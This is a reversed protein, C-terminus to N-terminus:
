EGPLALGIRFFNRDPVFPSTGLDFEWRDSGLSDPDSVPFDVYAETIGLDESRQVVFTFEGIYATPFDFHIGIRGGSLELVKFNTIAPIALPESPVEANDDRPDFGILYLQLYTYGNVPHTDYPGVVGLSGFFFEEWDDGLLNANVDNDSALPVSIVQLEIVELGVYPAEAVVDTYGKISFRTGLALGLGQDLNLPDGDAEFFRVPSLDDVKEFLYKDGPLTPAKVEITWTDFPRYASTRAALATTIEALAATIEQATIPAGSYATPLAGERLLTRLADLPLPLLPIVNVPSATPESHAVHYAYLDDVLSALDTGLGVSTEMVSLLNEFSLGTATLADRMPLTLPSRESDGGRNGFLTFQAHPPIEPIAEPPGPDAPIIQPVGLELQRPMPLAVLADLIVAEVLVAVATDIPELDTITTVQEFSAYAAAAAAVWVAADTSQNTGALAPAIVPAQQDPHQILKYIERGGKVESAGGDLFFYEPSNLILFENIPVSSGTDLAAALQGALPAPSSLPNVPASGLLGSTMSHLDIIEGDEADLAVRDSAEGGLTDFAQALLRIGEGLFPSTSTAPQSTPDNPDSGNIIEDLDSFGDADADPGSNAALGYEQEVFDPVGDSDQDFKALDAANFTYNRSIIPSLAGSALDQSYFQWSSPYSITLPGTYSQWASGPKDERYFVQYLDDDVLITADIAQPYLGSAPTVNIPPLTLALNTDLATLSITDSIQNTLLHTSGPPATPITATPNDLGTAADGFTEVLVNPPIPAPSSKSTWDPSAELELLTATPDVLPESSFWFLTAFEPIAPILAPLVGSDKLTFGLGDWAYFDFASSGAGAGSLAIVGRGPVPLLGRIPDPGSPTFNQVSNLNNGNDITFYEATGDTYTAVLGRAGLGSPAATLSTVKKSVARTVLSGFSLPFSVELLTIDSSAVLYTAILLTNDDRRINPAVMSADPVVGPFGGNLREIATELVFVIESSAGGNQVGVAFRDGAPDDYFPQFPSLPPFGDVEDLLLFPGAPDQWLSLTGSGGVHAILLDKRPEGSKRLLAVSDPGPVSSFRPTSVRTRTNFFALRNSVSSTLVLAEDGGEDFGSTAGTVSPLGSHVAPTTVVNNSGDVSIMRIQGTDRDILAFATGSEMPVHIENQFYVSPAAYASLTALLSIVFTKM